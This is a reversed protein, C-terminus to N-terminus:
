NKTGAIKEFLRAIEEFGEEKAEKAFTTYMDDWEYNEGAADLLHEPSSPLTGGCLLDYWLKAHEKEDGAAERFLEAIEPCGDQVAKEAYISYKSRAQAEGAFAALLNAYTKTEKLEKM